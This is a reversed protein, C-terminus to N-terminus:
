TSATRNATVASSMTPLRLAGVGLRTSGEGFEVWPTLDIVTPTPTHFQLYVGMGQRIPWEASLVRLPVPRIWRGLISVPSNGVIGMEPAWVGISGGVPTIRPVTDGDIEVSIAHRHRHDRLQGQAIALNNEHPQTGSLNANWDAGAEYGRWDLPVTTGFITTWLNYPSPTSAIEVGVGFGAVHWGSAWSELDEAFTIRGDVAVIAEGPLAGVGAGVYTRPYGWMGIGTGFDFSGNPRVRWEAAFVKAAEDLVARPSEVSPLWWHTWYPAAWSGSVIGPYLPGSNGIASAWMAPTGPSGIITEVPDPNALPNYGLVLAQPSPNLRAKNDEDGLLWAASPASLTRRNDDTSRLFGWWLAAAQCAGFSPRDGLYGETVFLSALGARPTTATPSLDLRDLISGPTDDRLNITASGVAMLEESVSSM